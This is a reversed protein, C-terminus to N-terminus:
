TLSFFDTVFNTLIYGMIFALIMVLAKTEMIKNKRIIKEFNVGSLAFISLFIFIVYLYIKYNM